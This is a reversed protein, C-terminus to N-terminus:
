VVLVFMLPIAKFTRIHSKSRWGKNDVENANLPRIDPLMKMLGDSM